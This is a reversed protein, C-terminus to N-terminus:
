KGEVKNIAQQALRIDIKLMDLHEGIDEKNWNDPTLNALTSTIKYLEPASAILHANAEAIETYPKDWKPIDALVDLYKENKGWIQRGKVKWPGPTHKM